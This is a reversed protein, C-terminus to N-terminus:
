ILEVVAWFHQFSHLKPACKQRGYYDDFFSVEVEVAVVVAVSDIRDRTIFASQAGRESRSIRTQIAPHVITISAILFPKGDFTLHVGTLIQLQVSM